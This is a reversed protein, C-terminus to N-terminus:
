RKVEVSGGAVAATLSQQLGSMMRLLVSEQDALQQLTNADTILLRQIPHIHEHHIEERLQSLNTPATGMKATKLRQQIVEIHRKTDPQMGEAHESVFEDLADLAADIASLNDGALRRQVNIVVLMLDADEKFGNLVPKLAANCAPILRMAEARDRAPPIYQGFSPLAVLTVVFLLLSRM